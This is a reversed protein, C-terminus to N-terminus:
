SSSRATRGRVLIRAIAGVVLVGLLLAAALLLGPAGEDVPLPESGGVGPGSEVALQTTRPLSGPSGRMQASAPDGVVLVDTLELPLGAIDSASFFRREHGRSDVINTTPLVTLFVDPRRVDFQVRSVEFCFAYLSGSDLSLYTGKDLWSGGNDGQSWDIRAVRTFTPRGFSSASAVIEGRSDVAVHGAGPVGEHAFEWIELDGALAAVRWSAGRMWELNNTTAVLPQCLTRVDYMGPGAGPAFVSLQDNDPLYLADLYTSRLSLEPARGAAVAQLCRDGSDMVRLGMTTSSGDPPIAGALGKVAAIMEDVQLHAVLEIGGDLWALLEESARDGAPAPSRAEPVRVWTVSLDMDYPRHLGRLQEVILDNCM